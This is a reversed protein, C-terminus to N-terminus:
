LTKYKLTYGFSYNTEFLEFDLKPRLRNVINRIKKISDEKSGYIYDEIEEYSKVTSNTSIFFDFLMTETKTLRIINGNKSLKKDKTLWIYDNELQILKNESEKLEYKEIINLLTTAIQTITYPKLIYGDVGFNITKMFYEKDDYASFVLIPIKKDKKRLSEIFCLGDIVPMKIDTIILDFKIDNQCFLELAEKGNSAESIKDFFSKLMKMTQFRVLHNDEVYLLNLDKTYRIINSLVQSNM